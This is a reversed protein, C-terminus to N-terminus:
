VSPSAPSGPCLQGRRGATSCKGRAVWVAVVVEAVPLRLPLRPHPHRASGPRLCLFCFRGLKAWLRSYLNPSRPSSSRLGPTGSLWPASLTSGHPRTSSSVLAGLVPLSSTKSIKSGPSIDVGSGLHARCLCNEGAGPRAQTRVSRPSSPGRTLFPPKGLPHLDSVM